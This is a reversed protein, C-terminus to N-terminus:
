GMAPLSIVKINYTLSVCVYIYIYICFQSTLLLATYSSLDKTIYM